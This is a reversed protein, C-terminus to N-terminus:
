VSVDKSQNLARLSNKIGKLRRRRREHTRVTETKMKRKHKASLSKLKQVRDIALNIV